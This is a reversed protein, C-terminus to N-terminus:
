ALRPWLSKCQSCVTLSASYSYQTNSVTWQGESGWARWQGVLSAEGRQMPHDRPDHPSASEDEGPSKGMRTMAQERANPQGVPFWGEDDAM